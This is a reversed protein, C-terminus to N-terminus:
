PYRAFGITEIGIGGVETPDLYDYDVVEIPVITGDRVASDWAARVTVMELNDVILTHKGAKALPRLDVIDSTADATSHGGDAIVVDCAARGRQRAAFAKLTANSPGITLSSRGPFRAAIFAAAHETYGHKGLDFSVVNVAADAALWFLASHGANFGVECVTVREREGEGPGRRMAGVHEAAVRQLAAICAPCRGTHGEFHNVVADTWRMEAHLTRELAVAHHVYAIFPARQAGATAAPQAACARRACTRELLADVGHAGGPLVDVGHRLTFALATEARSEDAWFVVEAANSTWPHCERRHTADCEPHSLEVEFRDTEVRPALLLSVVGKAVGFARLFAARGEMEPSLAICNRWGKFDFAADFFVGSLAILSNSAVYFVDYGLEREFLETAWRVSFPPEHREEWYYHCEFFIVPPRLSRLTRMAGQFVKPEWGETDIKLIDIGSEQLEAGAGGYIFDDLTTASVTDVVQAEVADGLLHRHQRSSKLVASLTYHESGVEREGVGRYVRAPGSANSVPQAHWHVRATPPARFAGSRQAAALTSPSAEFAYLVSSPWRALISRSWDGLNFGIDVVVADPRALATSRLADWLGSPEEGPCCQAAFVRRQERRVAEIASRDAARERNRRWRPPPLARPAVSWRESGRRATEIRRSEFRACKLADCAARILSWRFNAPLDHAICFADMVDSPADGAGVCVAGISAANLLVDASWVCLATAAPTPVFELSGLTAAVAFAHLTSLM